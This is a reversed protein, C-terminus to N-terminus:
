GWVRGEGLNGNFAALFDNAQTYTMNLVRAVEQGYGATMLCKISIPVVETDPSCLPRTAIYRDGENLLLPTGAVTGRKARRSDAEKIVSVRVDSM